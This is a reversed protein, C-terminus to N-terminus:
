LMALPELAAGVPSPSCPAGPESAGQPCGALHSRAAAASSFDRSPRDYVSARQRSAAGNTMAIYSHQTSRYSGLTVAIGQPNECHRGSLLGSGIRPLHAM